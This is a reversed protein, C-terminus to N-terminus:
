YMTSARPNNLLQIAVAGVYSAQRIGPSPNFGDWHAEPFTLLKHREKTELRLGTVSHPGSGVQSSRNLSAKGKQYIYGETFTLGRIPRAASLWQGIPLIYDAVWSFPVLEWATGLPNNLGLETLDRDIPNSVVARCFGRAKVAAHWNARRHNFSTGSDVNGHLNVVSFSRFTLSRAEPDQNMLNQRETVARLDQLAPKIGFSFELWRGAVGKPLSGRDKGTVLTNFARTALRDAERRQFEGKSIDNLSLRSRSATKAAQSESWDVVAKALGSVGKIVSQCVSVFTGITKGLEALAVPLEVDASQIEARLQTECVRYNASWEDQTMGSSLGAQASGNVRCLERLMSFNPQLDYYAPFNGQPAPSSRGEYNQFLYYNVGLRVNKDWLSREKASAFFPTKNSTEVYSAAYSSGNGGVAPSTGKRPM